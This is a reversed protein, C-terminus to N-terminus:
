QGKSASAKVVHGSLIEEKCVRMIYGNAVHTIESNLGSQTENLGSKNNCQDQTNDM